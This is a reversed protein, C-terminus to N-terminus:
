NVASLIVVADLVKKTAESILLVDKDVWVYRAYSPAPPLLALVDPPVDWYAIGPPLPQGIVYHRAHGPPLCGNRKKALGPPCKKAYYPHMHSRIVDIRPGDLAMLVRDPHRSARNGDYHNGDYYDYGKGRHDNKASASVAAVCLALCSISLIRIIHQNM